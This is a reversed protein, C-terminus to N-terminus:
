SAKEKDLNQKALLCHIAASVINLSDSDLMELKKADHSLEEKQKLKM